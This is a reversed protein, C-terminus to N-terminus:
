HTYKNHLVMSCTALSPKHMMSISVVKGLRSLRRLLNISVCGIPHVAGPTERRAFALLREAWESVFCSAGFPGLEQIMMQETSLRNILWQAQQAKGEGVNRMRDQDQTHPAPRGADDNSWNPPPPSSEMKGFRGLLADAHWRINPLGQTM